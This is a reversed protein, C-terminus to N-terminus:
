SDYNRFRRDAPDQNLLRCMLHYFVPFQGRFNVADEFFSEIAVAFFEKINTKAYERFFPHDGSFLLERENVPIHDLALLDADLDPDHQNSFAITNLLAHAMEHLGVNMKDNPIKYGDIFHKWSLSIYGRTNTEGKYLKNTRHNLYGQPYVNIINYQALRYDKLGFTIQAISGAILTRIKNTILLGDKSIFEKTKIITNVRILFEKRDAQSLERFYPFHMELLKTQRKFLWSNYKIIFERSKPLSFLIQYILILVLVGFFVGM